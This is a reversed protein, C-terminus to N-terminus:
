RTELYTDAEMAAICGSAAATVAQRYRVDQVDGAAFVGEVNTRTNRTVIYGRDDTEVQGRFIGSQPEHGIAIFVGAVELTRESGDRTNHLTIARVNGQEDGLIDAVVSNWEVSIKPNKLVKDAMLGKARLRDRRHILYVKEAINALYSAEEVATDGGGVVAVVQGRYFTGDCTACYSVGRGFFKEEAELGLKRPTAGTAIILAECTVEGGTVRLRFPRRLLDAAEVLGSMFRAGLRAAQARMRTMLEPGSVPEAFGPFNEVDAATTLQGGPMGEIVLVDRGARVAYIAATLGAPGSGIVAIEVRRSEIQPEAEM